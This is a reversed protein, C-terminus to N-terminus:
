SKKKAPSNPSAAGHFIQPYKRILDAKENETRGQLLMARIAKVRAPSFEELLVSLADDHDLMKELNRAHEAGSQGTLDLSLMLRQAESSYDRDCQTGKVVRMYHLGILPLLM